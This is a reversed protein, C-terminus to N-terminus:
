EAKFKVIMAKVYNHDFSNSYMNFKNKTQLKMIMEFFNYSANDVEKIERIEIIKGLTLNAFKAINQAKSKSKEIISKILQDNYVSQDEYKVTGITGSIGDMKKIEGSLKKLEEVSSVTVSFGLDNSNFLLKTKNNTEFSSDALSVYKYKQNKLFTEVNNLKIKQAAKTKLENSKVDEVVEEEDVAYLDYDEELSVIYEISTAKLKVSDKVEIEIFGNQSYTTLSLTFLAFALFFKSNKM